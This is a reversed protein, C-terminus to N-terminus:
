PAVWDYFYSLGFGNDYSNVLVMVTNPELCMWDYNYRHMLVPCWNAPFVICNWTGAAPSGDATNVSEACGCM